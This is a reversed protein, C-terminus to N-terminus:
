ESGEEDPSGEPLFRKRYEQQLFRFMRQHDHPATQWFPIIVERAYLSMGDHWCPGGLLWCNDQSPADESKYAPPRRYHIELGGFYQMDPDDDSSNSSTIHIHIGGRAGVVSWMHLERDDYPCEFTYRYRLNM